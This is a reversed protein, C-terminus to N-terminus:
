FVPENDLRKVMKKILDFESHTIQITQSHGHMRTINLDFGDLNSWGVIQIETEPYKLSAQVADLKIVNLDKAKLESM